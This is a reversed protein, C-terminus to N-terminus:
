VSTCIRVEDKCQSGRRPHNRARFFMHKLDTLEYHSLIKANLTDAHVHICTLRDAQRIQSSRPGTKRAYIHTCIYAHMYTNCIYTQKRCFYPYLVSTYMRIYLVYVYTNYAYANKRRRLFRAPVLTINQLYISISTHTDM